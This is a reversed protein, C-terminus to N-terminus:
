RDRILPDLYITSIQNRKIKQYFLIFVNQKEIKYQFDRFILANWFDFPFM